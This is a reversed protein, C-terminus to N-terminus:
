YYYIKYIDVIRARIIVAVFFDGWKIIVKALDETSEILNSGPSQALVAGMLSCYLAASPCQHEEM